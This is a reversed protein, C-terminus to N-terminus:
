KLEGKSIVDIDPFDQRKTSMFRELLEKHEVLGQNKVLAYIDSTIGDIFSKVIDQAEKTGLDDGDLTYYDLDEDIVFLNYRKAYDEILTNTIGRDCPSLHNEKQMRMYDNNLKQLQEVGYTIFHKSLKPITM